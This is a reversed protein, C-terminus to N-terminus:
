DKKYSADHTSGGLEDFFLTIRHGHIVDTEEVADLRYFDESSRRAACLIDCLTKERHKGHDMAADSTKRVCLETYTFNTRDVRLTFVLTFLKPEDM